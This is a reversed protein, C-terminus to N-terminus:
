ANRKVEARRERAFIHPDELGIEICDRYVSALSVGEADAIAKCAAKMKPTVVIQIPQTYRATLM